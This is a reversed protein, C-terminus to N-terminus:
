QKGGGVMKVVKEIIQIARAVCEKEYSTLGGTINITYLGTIVEDVDLQRDGDSIGGRSGDGDRIGSLMDGDAGYQGTTDDQLISNSDTNGNQIERNSMCGGIFGFVMGFLGWFVWILEM